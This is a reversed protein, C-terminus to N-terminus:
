VVTAPRASERARRPPADTQLFPLLDTAEVIGAIRDATGEHVPIRSHGSLTVLDILETTTAEAPATVLDSRATMVAGATCGRLRFAGEFLWAEESTLSGRLKGEEILTKLDDLGVAAASQGGFLRAGARAVGELLNVFPRLVTGVLRLLPAMRIAFREGHELAYTKPAVECFVLLIFSMSLVQVALLAAL